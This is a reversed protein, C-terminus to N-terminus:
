FVRKGDLLEIVAECSHVTEKASDFCYVCPGFLCCGFCCVILCLIHTACSSEPDIKTIIQSQCHKCTVKTPRSPYFATDSHPYQNAAGVTVIQVPQQAIFPQKSQNNSPPEDYVPPPANFNDNQPNQSNQYSSQTVNDNPLGTVPNINKSM